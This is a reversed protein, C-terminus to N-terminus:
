STAMQWVHSENICSKPKSSDTAISKLGQFAEVKPSHFVYSPLNDLSKEEDGNKHAGRGNLARGARGCASATCGTIEIDKNTWKNMSAHDINLRRGFKTLDTLGISPLTM